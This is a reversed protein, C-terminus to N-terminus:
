KQSESTSTETVLTKFPLSSTAAKTKLANKVTWLTIIGDVEIELEAEQRIDGVSWELFVSEAKVTTIKHRHGDFKFVGPMPLSRLEGEPGTLFVAYLPITVPSPVEFRRVVWLQSNQLKLQVVLEVRTEGCICKDGTANLFSRSAGIFDRMESSAFADRNQCIFSKTLRTLDPNAEVMQIDLVPTQSFGGTNLQSILCAFVVLQTKCKM